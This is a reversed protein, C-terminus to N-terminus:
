SIPAVPLLIYTANMDVCGGRGWKELRIFAARGPGTHVVDQPPVLKEAYKTSKFNFYKVFFMKRNRVCVTLHRV